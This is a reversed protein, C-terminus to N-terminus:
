RCNPLHREIYERNLNFRPIDRDVAMNTRFVGPQPESVERLVCRGRKWYTPLDNWNSAREVCLDMLAERKLGHLEKPSALSQALGQLSNREADRQRWLFYNCVDDEPIVFARADFEGGMHTKANWASSAVGGAISVMKQLRNGFWPQSHHDAYYVILVSVEDSQVYALKAGQIDYMLDKAVEDMGAAVYTDYPKGCGRTVTHFARGDVRLIVPMRPPLKVEFAEEYSKMRDGLSMNTSMLSM